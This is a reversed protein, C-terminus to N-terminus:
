LDLLILERDLSGNFSAPWSGIPDFGNGANYPSINCSFSNNLKYNASLNTNMNQLHACTSMEYPDGSSGDGGVFSYVSFIMLFFLSFYNLGKTIM